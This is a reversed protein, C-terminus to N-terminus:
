KGKRGSGLLAGGVGGLAAGWPGFGAGATAGAGLGAVANGKGNSVQPAMQAGISKAVNAQNVFDELSLGRQLAGTEFGQKGTLASQIANARQSAVDQALNSAQRGLEQHLASSNLLHQSNLGEEIDPTMRKLTQAAYDQQASSNNDIAGLTDKYQKEGLTRIAEQDYASQAPDVSFPGSVGSSNGGGGHKYLGPLPNTLPIGYPNQQLVESLGGTLAAAGARRAIPNGAAARAAESLGGTAIGTAVRGAKGGM